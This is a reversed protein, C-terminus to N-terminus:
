ALLESVAGVVADVGISSMQGDASQVIRHGPGYPGNRRAENREGPRPGWLAVCPTDAAAALHLPGTDGAVVVSARRLLAVLAVLDTPPALLVRTSAAARVIGTALAEEGPGWAVVVAAGREQALRAALAAFREALWRKGPQGAGPSVVVVRNRPKLGAGAFFEDVTTEALADTPLRFEHVPPSAGLPELLALYQDVVHVADPAPLVHHNTLRASWPERCRSPAFGIRLPARSLWALVASKGLGQLDLAVDIRRDALRARLGLIAPVAGILGPPRRWRRTDVTMVDDVAPHDRVIAAERRELLWTVRADGLRARLTAAVPLSHVVDGVSSLKVLLINV